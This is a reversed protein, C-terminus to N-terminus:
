KVIAQVDLNQLSLAVTNRNITQHENQALAVATLVVQFADYTPKAFAQPTEDFPTVAEYATTFEPSLTNPSVTPFPESGLPLAPLSAQQYIPQTAATTDSRGHGIVAVVQDDLVLSRAVQEALDIQGGDDLAVLAIRYNADTLAQNAERVALRAAYIADYGIERDAGEFPAILGIKIVQPTTTCASVATAVIFIALSLFLYKLFQNALM